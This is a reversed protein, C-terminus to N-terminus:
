VFFGGGNFFEKGFDLCDHSAPEGDSSCREALWDIMPSTKQKSFIFRGGFRM